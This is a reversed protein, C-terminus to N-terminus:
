NAGDRGEMIRQTAEDQPTMPEEFDKMMVSVLVAMSLYGVSFVAIGVMTIITVLGLKNM